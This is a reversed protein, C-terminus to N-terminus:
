KWTGHRLVFYLLRDDKGANDSVVRFGLKKNVTKVAFSYLLSTETVFSHLVNCMISGICYFFSVAASFFAFICEM